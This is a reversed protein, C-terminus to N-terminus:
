FIQSNDSLMHTYWTYFLASNCTISVCKQIPHGRYQRWFTHNVSLQGFISNSFDPWLCNQFFRFIHTDLAFYRPTVGGACRCSNSSTSARRAVFSQIECAHWSWNYCCASIVFLVHSSFNQWSYILKYICIRAVFLWLFCCCCCCCCCCCTVAALELSLM